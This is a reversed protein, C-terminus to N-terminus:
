VRPFLCNHICHHTRLENAYLHRVRTVDTFLLCICVCFVLVVLHDWVSVSVHVPVFVSVPMPVPVSNYLYLHMCIWETTHAKDVWLAYKKGKNKPTILM